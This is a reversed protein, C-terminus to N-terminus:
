IELLCTDGHYDIVIVKDFVSNSVIGPRIRAVESPELDWAMVTDVLILWWDEFQGEFPRVKSVKEQICHTINQIYLTEIFGGSDDDSTIGHRFVHDHVPTAPLIELWIGDSVALETPTTRPGKLFGDLAKCMAQGTKRFSKQLPRKYTLGVWYSEGDFDQDYSSLVENLKRHLPISDEELGTARGPGFYNQNLRRVEVAVKPGVSFDPPVNGNPEFVVEGKSLGKLFKEATREEQNM